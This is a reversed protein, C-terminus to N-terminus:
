DMIVAKWISYDSWNAGTFYRSVVLFSTQLALIDVDIAPLLSMAIGTMSLFFMLLSYLVEKEEKSGGSYWYYVGYGLVVVNCSENALLDISRLLSSSDNIVYDQDCVM